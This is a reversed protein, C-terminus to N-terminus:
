KKLLTTLRLCIIEYLHIIIISSYHFPLSNFLLYYFSYSPTIPLNVDNNHIRNLIKEELFCFGRWM